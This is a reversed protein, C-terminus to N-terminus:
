PSQLKMQGPEGYSYQPAPLLSSIYSNLDNSELILLLLTTEDVKIELVLDLKDLIGPVDLVDVVDVVDVIDLRDLTEPIDLIDLLDLMTFAEEVSCLEDGEFIEVEDAELAEDYEVVDFLEDDIRPERVEVIEDLLAVADGVRPIL